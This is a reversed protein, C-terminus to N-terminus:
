SCRMSRLCFAAFRLFDTANERGFLPPESSDSSCTSNPSRIRNTSFESWLMGRIASSIPTEPTARLMHIAPVALGVAILSSSILLNKSLAAGYKPAEYVMVKAPQSGRHPVAVFLRNFVPVFLGTRAGPASNARAVKDLHDPDRLRFVDVFGEGGIVYIMRHAADL